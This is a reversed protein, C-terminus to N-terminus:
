RLSGLIAIGHVATRGRSVIGLMYSASSVLDCGDQCKKDSKLRVVVALGGCVLTEPRAENLAVNTNM